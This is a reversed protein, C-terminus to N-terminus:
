ADVQPVASSAKAAARGPLYPETVRFLFMGALMAVFFILVQSSGTVLSTVAPGPCFGGLGWGVGFMGAGVVLSPTIDKRNPIDFVAAFFPKTRDVTRRFLVFAVLLGGGMVGALAPNWNGFFDLFGIINEPKTMGAIGLGVSFFLGAFFASALAKRNM